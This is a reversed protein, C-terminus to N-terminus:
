TAGLWDGSEILRAGTALPRAYVYIWAVGGAVEVVERRYLPPEHHCGEVEDLLRLHTATSLEYVEGVVRGEGAVVAPYPGLDYLRYGDVAHVGLYDAGDLHHSRVDGGRLTGYVFLRARM